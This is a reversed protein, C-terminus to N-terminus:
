DPVGARDRTAGTFEDSSTTRDGGGAHKRAVVAALDPDPAGSRDLRLWGGYSAGAAAV